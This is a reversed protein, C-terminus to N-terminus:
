MTLHCAQILGDLHRVLGETDYDIPGYGNEVFQGNSITQQYTHSLGRAEVDVGAPYSNPEYALHGNREALPTNDDPRFEQSFHTSFHHSLSTITPHEDEIDQFFRVTYGIDSASGTDIAHGSISSRTRRIHVGDEGMVSRISREICEESATYGHWSTDTDQAALPNATLAFIGIANLSQKLIATSNIM